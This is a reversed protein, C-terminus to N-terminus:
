GLANTIAGLPNRLEHSLIALFKNAEERRAERQAELGTVTLITPSLEFVAQLRAAWTSDKM